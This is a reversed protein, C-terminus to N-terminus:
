VSGLPSFNRCATRSVTLPANGAATASPPSAAGDGDGSPPSLPLSGAIPRPTGASSAPAASLWAASISAAPASIAPRGPRGGGRGRGSVLEIEIAPEALFGAGVDNELDDSGAAHVRRRVQHREGCRGRAAPSFGAAIATKGAWSRFDTSGPEGQGSIGLKAPSRDARRALGERADLEAAAHRGVEGLEIALPRRRREEVVDGVGGARVDMGGVVARDHLRHLRKGILDQRRTGEHAVSARGCRGSGARSGPSGRHCARRRGVGVIAPHAQALMSGRWRPM